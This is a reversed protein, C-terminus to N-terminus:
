EQDKEEGHTIIHVLNKYDLNGAVDPPFATFMQEMQLATVRCINAVLPYTPECPLSGHHHHHHRRVEENSFRDAQTTLMQTVSPLSLIMLTTISTLRFLTSVSM